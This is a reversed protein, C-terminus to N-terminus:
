RRSGHGNGGMTDSGARIIGGPTIIYAMMEDHAEHPVHDMLAGDHCIGVRLASSEKLFRDYYGGGQGLRHGACDFAVGPVLILGISDPSVIECRADPEMLGYAGCVLDGMDAIRRATMRGPAECRPLILTRGDSLIDRIVYELCLEGRCAMYAMICRAQRYPEFAALQVRVARAAEQQMEPPFLRRQARLERRLRDKNMCM